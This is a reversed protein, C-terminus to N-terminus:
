RSIARLSGLTKDWTELKVELNGDPCEIGIKIEPHGGSNEKGQYNWAFFLEKGNVDSLRTIIEQGALGDVSRKRARIKDVAVGPAFNMALSASLRDMVGTEEVKHTEEMEVRFVMEMPGEFRAYTKEQELYGLDVVGKQLYFGHSEPLVSTVESGIYKYYRGIENIDTLMDGEYEVLGVLKIWLGIPGVYILVEWHGDKNSRYNGYYLVGRGWQGINNIEINKIIPKNVTRPCRQKEVEAIKAGWIQNRAVERSVNAPWDIEKIEAYRFKQSQVVLKFEAPLDIAFRGLYYTKMGQQAGKRTTAQKNENKEAANSCSGLTVILLIAWSLKRLIM